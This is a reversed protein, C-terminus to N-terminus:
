KKLTQELLTRRRRRPRGLPRKGLPKGRLIKFSSRSEEMRTVHGAWRLRISKIARVIIPSRYLSHLEKNHLRRWEGNENLFSPCFTDLILIATDSLNFIFILFIRTPFLLYYEILPRFLGEIEHFKHHCTFNLYNLRMKWRIESLLALGIVKLSVYWQKLIHSEGPMAPLRWSRWLVFIWLVTFSNLQKESSEWFM